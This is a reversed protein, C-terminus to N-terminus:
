EGNCVALAEEVKELFWTKNVVDVSDKLEVAFRKLEELETEQEVTLYLFRKFMRVFNRYQRKHLESIKQHRDIYLRFSDYLKYMEDVEKSSLNDLNEYYAKWLYIRADLGYFVDHRAEQILKKFFDISEAYDKQHFKLIGTNYALAVGDHSDSLQPAYEEIFAEVWNLRGVRCGIVVMNKFQHPPLKEGGLLVNNDLLQIFLDLAHVLFAKNGVNIQRYCHNLAYGYLEDRTNEEFDQWYQGMLALLRNFLDSDGGASQLALILSYAESLPNLQNGLPRGQIKDKLAQVLGTEKQQLIYGINMAACSMQLRKSDTFQDLIELMSEFTAILAKDPKRGVIRVETVQLSHYLQALYKEPSDAQKALKRETKRAIGMSTELQDDRELAAKVMLVEQLAPSKEFGCQAFFELVKVYLQSCMKDFRSAKLSTGKIFAEVTLDTVNETDMVKLQWQKWFASLVKSTNFFPSDLFLTFRERDEEKFMALLHYIKRNEMFGKGWALFNESLKPWQIALIQSKHEGVFWGDPCTKYKGIGLLSQSL